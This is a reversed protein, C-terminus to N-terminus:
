DNTLSIKTYGARNSEKSYEEYLGDEKLKKINVTRSVTPLVLTVNVKEGYVKVIGTNEMRAQLMDRLLRIKEKARSEETLLRALEDEVLSDKGFVDFYDKLEDKIDLM